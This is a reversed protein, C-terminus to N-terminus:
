GVAETATCRRDWSAERPCPPAHDAESARAVSAALATPRSAGDVCASNAGGVYAPDAGDVCAPDAGDVCAPDAEDVYAPNAEDVWCRPAGAGFSPQHLWGLRRP